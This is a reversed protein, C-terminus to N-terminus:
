SVAAHVPEEEPDEQPAVIPEDEQPLEEPEEYPESLPVVEIVREVDGINMHVTGGEKKM